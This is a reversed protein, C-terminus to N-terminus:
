EVKFRSGSRDLRYVLTKGNGDVAVRWGAVMAQACSNETGPLDFCTNSWMQSRGELIYLQSTPVKLQKSADQLVVKAISNPLSDKRPPMDGIAETRIQEASKDTRYVQYQKPKGEVTVQWGPTQASMCREVPSPLDLCGNSWTQQQTQTILLQSIPLTLHESALKLVQEAVAPPLKKAENPQSERQYLQVQSGVKDTNYIWRKQGSEVTVQWGEVVVPDCPHPFTSVECGYAWGTQKANVIRGTNAPLGWNQTADQLVASVVSKPLKADVISSAAENLRIRSGNRDSRYVLSQQRAKVTVEWAPMNIKTCGEAPRPLNLCGNTYIQEYKIIRLQSAQLGTRQSAIRLIANAVSSPLKEKKSVQKVPDAVAAEKLTLATCLSLSLSSTLLILTAIAWKKPDKKQTMKEM